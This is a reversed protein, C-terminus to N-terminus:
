EDEHENPEGLYRFSVISVDEAHSIPRREFFALDRSAATVIRYVRLRDFDTETLARLPRTYVDTIEVVRNMMEHGSNDFLRVVAKEGPVYGKHHTGNRKGLRLTATLRGSAILASLVEFPAAPSARFWLEPTACTAIRQVTNLM